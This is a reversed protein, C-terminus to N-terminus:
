TSKPMSSRIGGFFGVRAFLGAVKFFVVRIAASVVGSGVEPSAGAEVRMIPTPAITTTKQTIAAAISSDARSVGAGAAVASSLAAVATVAGPEIVFPDFGAGSARGAVVVIAASADLDGDAFDDDTVIVPHRARVSEANRSVSVSPVSAGLDRLQFDPNRRL